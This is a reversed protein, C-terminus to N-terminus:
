ERRKIEETGRRRRGKEESSRCAGCDGSVSYDVISVRHMVGM